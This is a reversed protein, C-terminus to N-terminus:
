KRKWNQSQSAISDRSVFPLQFGKNLETEVFISARKYRKDTYKDYVAAHHKQPNECCELM